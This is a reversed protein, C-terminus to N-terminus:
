SKRSTIWGGVVKDLIGNKNVFARGQGVPLDYVYAVVGRNREDFSSPTMPLNHADQYDGGIWTSLDLSSNDM